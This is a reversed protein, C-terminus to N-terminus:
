TGDPGRGRRHVLVMLAVFGAVMWAAQVLFPQIPQADHFYVADHVIAVTAGSPLFQGIFAYVPPLLLPAVAGGSSANGLVVFVLWTPIIAWRGILVLMTSCFLAATAIQASLAAWISLMAGPLAGLIPGSVLAVALGGAVAIVAIYALWAPLRLGAANARLQFMTLFGVITAGLTAYFAALGQPDSPPLPRVDHIELPTNLQQQVEFATLELLRAVSAGTASAVLLQPRGADLILAACVTREGIAERAAASSPYPYWDIEHHTAGELAGILTPQRAPDGVLAVPLHHPAPRALALTYSAVFISVMVVALAIVVAANRHEVRRYWYRDM